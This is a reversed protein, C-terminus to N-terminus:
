EQFTLFGGKLTLGIGLFSFTCLVHHQGAVRGLTLVEPPERPDPPFAEERSIQIRGQARAEEVKRAREAELDREREKFAMSHAGDAPTRSFSPKTKPAEQAPEPPKEPVPEVAAALAPEVAAAVPEEPKHAAPEASAVPAAIINGAPDAIFPQSSQSSSTPPRPM